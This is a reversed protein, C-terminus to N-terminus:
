GWLRWWPKNALIEPLPAELWLWYAAALGFCLWLLIWFAEPLIRSINALEAGDGEHKGDILNLPATIASRLIYIGIFEIALSVQYHETLLSAGFFVSSIILMILLTVLDRALFICCALLTAALGQLLWTSQLTDQTNGALYILAGWCVAGTYGSILIFFRSGGSTWATGSGNFRLEMKHFRGLTSIAMLGHSLEHFFTEAWKFPKKLPTRSVILAIIFLAILEQQNSLQQWEPLQSLSSPM